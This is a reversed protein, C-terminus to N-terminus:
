IDVITPMKVNILMILVVEENTPIKTKQATSIRASDLQAHFLQIVKPGSISDHVEVTVKSISDHVEVTVKTTQQYVKCVTKVWILVM